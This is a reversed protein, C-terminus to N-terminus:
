AGRSPSRWWRCSPSRCSASWCRPTAGEARRPFAARARRAPCARPDRLAARPAWRLPPEGPPTLCKDPHPRALCLRLSLSPAPQSQLPFSFFFFVFESVLSTLRSFFSLCWRCKSVLAALRFENKSLLAWSHNIIMNAHAHVCTSGMLLCLCGRVAGREAELGRFILEAEESCM